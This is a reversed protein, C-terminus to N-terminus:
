SRREGTLWGGFLGCVSQWLRLARRRGAVSLLTLASYQTDDVGVTM